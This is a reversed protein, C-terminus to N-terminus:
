FSNNFNSIVFAGSDFNLSVTTIQDQCPRELFIFYIHKFLQLKVVLSSVFAIIFLDFSLFLSNLLSSNLIRKLNLLREEHYLYQVKM